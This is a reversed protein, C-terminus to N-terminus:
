DASVPTPSLKGETIVFRFGQKELEDWTIEERILVNGNQDKVLVVDEWLHELEGLKTSSHPQLTTVFDEADDGAFIDVTEDTENVWTVTAGPDCAFGGTLLIFGIVLGALARINNTQWSKWFSRTM